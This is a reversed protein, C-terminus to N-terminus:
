NQYIQQQYSSNGQYYIQDQVPMPFNKQFKNEQNEVVRQKNNRLHNTQLVYFFLFAVALDSFIYWFFAPTFFSAWFKGFFSCIQRGLGLSAIGFFGSLGGLILMFIGSRTPNKYLLIVQCILYIFCCVSILVFYLYFGLLINEYFITIFWGCFILLISIISLTQFIWHTSDIGIDSVGCWFYGVAISSTFSSNFFRAIQYILSNFPLFCHQFMAITMMVGYLGFTLTYYIQGKFNERLLVYGSFLGIFLALICLPILTPQTICFEDTLCLKYAPCVEEFYEM